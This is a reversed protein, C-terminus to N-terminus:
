RGDTALTDDRVVTGDDPLPGVPPWSGDVVPTDVLGVVRVVLGTVVVGGVFAGGTVVFNLYFKGNTAYSPDFALGLLGQESVTSLHAASIDLFATSNLTGTSLNLIRIQGGKQVIFLRNYDGPPATAFLPLNLGTAVRVAALGTPAQSRATPTCFLALATGYLISRGCKGGIRGRRERM